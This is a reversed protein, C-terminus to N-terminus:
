RATVVNIEQLFSNLDTKDNFLIKEAFVISM